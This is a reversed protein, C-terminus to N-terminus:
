FIKKYIIERGGSYTLKPTQKGRLIERIAVLLELYNMGEKHARMIASTFAGSQREEMAYEEDQCASLSLINCGSGGPYSRLSPHKDTLVKIGTQSIDGPMAKIIPQDSNQATLGLVGKAITGSHCSDSFLYIKIKEHTILRTLSAHLADDTIMGDYLCWTEDKKDLEEKNHDPVQGGHGSYTIYLESVAGSRNYETLALNIFDGVSSLYNKITANENHLNVRGPAQILQRMTIADNISGHLVGEWGNYAKPDVKNLGIHIAYKM